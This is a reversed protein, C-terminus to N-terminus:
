QGLEEHVVTAKVQESKEFRLVGFGKKVLLIDYFARLM